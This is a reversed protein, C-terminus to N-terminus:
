LVPSVLLGNQQSIIHKLESSDRCLIVEDRGDWTPKMPLEHTNHLKLVHLDQVSHNHDCVCVCLAQM